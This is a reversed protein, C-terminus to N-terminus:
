ISCHAVGEWWQFCWRSDQRLGTDLRSLGSPMQSPGKPFSLLLPLRHLVIRCGTHTNCPRSRCVFTHQPPIQHSHFVTLM